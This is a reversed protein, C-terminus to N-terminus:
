LQKILMRNYNKIQKLRWEKFEMSKITSIEYYNSIFVNRFDYWMNINWHDTHKITENRIYRELQKRNM